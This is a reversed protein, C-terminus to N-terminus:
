LRPQLLYIGGFLCFSLDTSWGGGSRKYADAGAEFAYDRPIVHGISNSLSISKNCVMCKLLGIDKILTDPMWYKYLASHVRKEVAKIAHSVARQDDETTTGRQKAKKTLLCFCRSTTAM